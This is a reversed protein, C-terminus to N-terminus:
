KTEIPTKSSLLVHCKEPNAKLHSKKKLRSVLTKSIVTHNDRACAYPKTDDDYSAIGKNEFEFFLDIGDINFLLPRM